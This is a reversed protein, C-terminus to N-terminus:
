TDYLNWCKCVVFTRLTMFTEANVYSFTTLRMFTQVSVCLMSTVRRAARTMILLSALTELEVSSIWTATCRESRRPTWRSPWAAPPPAPLALPPSCPTATVSDQHLVRSPAQMSVATLTSGCLQRRVRQGRVRSRTTTHTWTWMLLTPSASGYVWVQLFAHLKTDVLM